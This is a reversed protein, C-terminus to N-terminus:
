DGYKKNFASMDWDTICPVCLLSDGKDYIEAVDAASNVTQKCFCCKGGTKKWLASEEFENGDIDTVYGIGHIKRHISKSRFPLVNEGSPKSGESTSKKNSQAPSLLPKKRSSVPTKSNSTSSSTDSPGSKVVIDKASPTTSSIMNPSEVATRTSDPPIGILSSKQNVPPVMFSPIEDDEFPNVMITGGPKLPPKDKEPVLFPYNGRNTTETGSTGGSGLFPVNRRVPKEGEVKKIKAKFVKANKQCTADVEISWLEDIPLATYWSKTTEDRGLKIGHREAILLMWPESAWFMLENDESHAVVLPRQNNRLLNLTNEEMDWWVAAWAGEISGFTAEPGNKAINYFLASSDVSLERGKDLKWRYEHSLTGNHVGVIHDHEFPHANAVDSTDGVTAHRCHGILVKKDYATMMDTYRKNELIGNSPGAIKFWDRSNNRKIAIAGTAHMGRLQCVLLMDNFADRADKTVKGAVGVIGCM